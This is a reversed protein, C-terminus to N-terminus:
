EAENINEALQILGSETADNEIEQAEAEANLKRAQADKYVVDAQTSVQDLQLEFAEKQATLDNKQAELQNKQAEIEIQAQVLEAMPDSQGEQSQQAQMMEMVYEREQDNLDEPDILSPSMSLLMDLEQNRAVKRISDGGSGDIKQMTQALILNYMPNNSDTSQLMSSLTAREAELKSSYSAGTEVVVEFSGKSLDNQITPLGDAFKMEMLKINNVSGDESLTRLSRAVGGYIEKAISMYVRGCHKMSKRMNHILIFYSMDARNQVQQIAAGSTNSPISVEGTGLEEALDQNITQLAAIITPPVQPASTKGIAGLHKVNGEGDRIPKALMYPYNKVNNDAWMKAIDPTIQEPAFIDKEKQSETMIEALNSIAMNNFTQRDRQKRVEGMYYEKGKIYSRYGYCPIIPIFSGPIREPKEIFKDGCILSKMIKRKKVRETTLQTYEAVEEMMAPDDGLESKNIKIIEGAPSEFVLRTEFSEVIEYFEAVYVVDDAFWDFEYNGISPLDADSFPSCKPYEKDFAHRTFETLVWCKKADSKDFKRADADWIVVTDAGQIADFRVFQKNFDPNEDDEYQASLRFAGFGGKVAEQFATDTAEEGDSRRSDSRFRDNLINAVRRESDEDDPLYNVSIPNASYEGIIRNIERTIKDFVLKPKNEFADGCAGDWQAGDVDVFKRDEISKDRQEVTQTWARNFDNLNEYVDKM